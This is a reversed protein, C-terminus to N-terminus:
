GKPCENLAQKVQPLTSLETPPIYCGVVYFCQSGMVVVCSLVNPRRICWDKVEYTKNAQWFLAIGGQHASPANSAVVSYGSSNRTYIGGTLKTELFVGLDVGMAEMARLTSKLGGNCGNCITWSAVVISGSGDTQSPLRSATLAM